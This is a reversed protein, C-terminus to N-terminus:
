KKLYYKRASVFFLIGTIGLIVSIGMAFKQWRSLGSPTDHQVIGAPDVDIETIVGHGLGDSVSVKWEGKQDPFFLFRGNKDTLGEQFVTNGDSPSYVKVDCYSLPSGDDYLAQIGVGGRVIQHSVGHALGVAYLVVVLFGFLVNKKM